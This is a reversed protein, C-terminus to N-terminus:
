VEAAAAGELDGFECDGDVDGGLEGKFDGNDVVEWVVFQLHPSQDNAQDVKDEIQSRTKDEGDTSDSQLRFVNLLHVVHDLDGFPLNLRKEKNESLISLKLCLSFEGWNRNVLQCLMTMLKSQILVAKATAAARQRMSAKM